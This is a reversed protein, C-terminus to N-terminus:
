RVFTALEAYFEKRGTKDASSRAVGDDVWAKWRDRHAAGLTGHYTQLRSM